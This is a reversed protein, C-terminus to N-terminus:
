RLLFYYIISLVILLATLVVAPRLITKVTKKDSGFVIPVPGVVIVGEAKVNGRKGRLTSVLVTATILIIIIGALVLGFDLLYLVSLDALRTRWIM